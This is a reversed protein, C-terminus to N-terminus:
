RVVIGLKKLDQAAQDKQEATVAALYKLLTADVVAERVIAVGKTDAASADVSAFLVGAMRQRGDVATPDWAVCKGKGSEIDNFVFVEFKDGVAFDTAGDTITANLQDNDSFVATGGAGGTITKQGLSNGDPDIIEFTGSNTAAAVAIVLYQGPKARPGLSLGSITGNGTGVVAPAGTGVTVTFTDGVIFDTSGDNLTFNIHNSRYPTGVVANPLLKGSPSTV